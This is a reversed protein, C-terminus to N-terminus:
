EWTSAARGSGTRHAPRRVSQVHQHDAGTLGSEGNTVVQVLPAQPEQDDVGCALGARRPPAPPIRQPEEGRSLVVAQRAQREGGVMVAVGALVVDRLVQVAVGGREIQRDPQARRDDREGSLELGTAVQRIDPAPYQPRLLDHDGGPRELHRRNGRDCSAQVRTHGLEM